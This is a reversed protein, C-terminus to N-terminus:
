SRPFPDIEAEADFGFLAWSRAMAAPLVASITLMGGAPHPIDIRRAHLHLGDAVDGGLRAAAAGYKRDGVIPTGLAEACHVRLQHTRGTLPWLVLWAARKGLAEVTAYHTIARRGNYFTERDVDEFGDRVTAIDGLRLVTGDDTTIIPIRSFEDAWERREKFRVLIEGGRTKLGGGPVEVSTAQVRAAIQNLTLGYARLTEQPASPRSAPM